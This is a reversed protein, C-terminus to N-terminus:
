IMGKEKLVGMVMSINSGAMTGGLSLMVSCAELIEEVTAGDKIAKETQGLICGKCGMTIAGCMAMLRKTKSDFVGNEYTKKYHKKFSDGKDELKEILEWFHSSIEKYEELYNM